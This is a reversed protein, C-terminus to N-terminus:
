APPTLGPAKHGRQEGERVNAQAEEKLRESWQVKQEWSESASLGGVRAGECVCAGDAVFGGTCPQGADPLASSLRLM